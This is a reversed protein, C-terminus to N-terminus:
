DSECDDCVWDEGILKWGYDEGKLIHVAKSYPTNSGKTAQIVVEKGCFLCTCKWCELLRGANELISM